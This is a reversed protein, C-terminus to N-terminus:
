LNGLKLRSALTFLEADNLDLFLLQPMSHSRMTQDLFLNTCRKSRSGSCFPLGRETSTKRIHQSARIDSFKGGLPLTQLRRQMSHTVSAAVQFYLLQQWLVAVNGKCFLAQVNIGITVGIQIYDTPHWTRLHIGFPDASFM